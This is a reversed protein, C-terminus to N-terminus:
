FSFSVNASLTTEEFNEREFTHNLEVGGSILETPFFDLGVSLDLSARDDRPKPGSAVKTDTSVTELEGFLSVFPEFKEFLYSARGGVQLIGLAVASEDVRTGDSETFSDSREHALLHRVTPSVLFNGIQFDGTFGLSGFLRRSETSGTVLRGGTLTRRDMDTKTWTHGLQAEISFNEGVLVAGYLGATIGNADLEGRNFDTDVDTREYGGFGGILIAETLWYDAGALATVLRGQFDTNRFDNDVWTPGSNAWVGYRAGDEGAAYGSGYGFLPITSADREALRDDLLGGPATPDGSTESNRQRRGRGFADRMATHIRTFVIRTIRETFVRMVDKQITKAGGLDGGITVTVSQNVIIPSGEVSFVFTDTGVFDPNPTYFIDLVPLPDNTNGGVICVDNLGTWTNLTRSETSLTGGAPASNIILQPLPDIGFCGEEDQFLASASAVRVRQGAVVTPTADVEVISQKGSIVKIVAEAPSAFTTATAICAALGVSKRIQKHM